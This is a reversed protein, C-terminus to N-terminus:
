GACTVPGVVKSGYGKLGDLRQRGIFNVVHSVYEEPREDYTNHGCHPMVAFEGKTLNRYFEVGQEVQFLFSRDPYLVLTPCKVKRLTPRLDFFGKGYAGGFQRFQDHFKKTRKGHWGILKKSLEMDLEDFTKTFKSINFEHMECDSFCLTSSIVMNRVRDPYKAAYEAGIVGGECQGM